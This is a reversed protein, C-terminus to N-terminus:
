IDCKGISHAAKFGIVTINRRPTRDRRYSFFRAQEEYTCMRAIEIHHPSVGAQRLQQYSLEWLDFYAPTKQYSHFSAPFEKEYHIFQAHNPGLSPSICVLLDQPDCSAEEELVKVTKGLINLINGKVGCHVNAIVERKPDYFLASQCDAHYVTLGLYPLRTFIGDASPAPLVFEKQTSDHDVQIVRDEHRQTGMVLSKVGLCQRVKERNNKMVPDVSGKIGFSMEETYAGARRLFVGHAIHPFEQLLEFELWAVGEKEQLIM